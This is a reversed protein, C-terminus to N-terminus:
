PARSGEDRRGERLLRITEARIANWTVFADYASWTPGLASTATASSRSSGSRTVRCCTSRRWRPRRDGPRDGRSAASGEHRPAHDRMDTQLAGLCPAGAPSPRLAGGTQEFLATTQMWAVAILVVVLVIIAGLGLRLQTGVKMDRLSCQEGARESSPPPLAVAAFGGAREVITREAEGTMLYGRPSLCRGVKELMFRRVAPRYYFLVNCLVVIDFDGFISAPVCTSREDLLDYTSFDVHARLAPAVSYSRGHRVFWRDLHGLRINGVADRDYVGRRAVEIEAESADTAFVRYPLPDEMAAALDELLAAISWAEEGSSCAASWIRLEGRGSREREQALAPLVVRELVAFALPDRFFGTYGINLSSFFTQAEDAQDGLSEAYVEATVGVAATRKDLSTALFGEDFSSLDRGHADRMVAIVKNVYAQTM